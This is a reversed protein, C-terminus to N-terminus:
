AGRKLIDRGRSAVAAAKCAPVLDENPQSRGMHQQEEARTGWSGPAPDKPGESKRVHLLRKRVTGQTASSIKFMHASSAAKLPAPRFTHMVQHNSTYFYERGGNALPLHLATSTAEGQAKAPNCDSYEQYWSLLFLAHTDDMEVDTRGRFLFASPQPARALLCSHKGLRHTHPESAGFSPHGCRVQPSRWSQTTSGLQWM